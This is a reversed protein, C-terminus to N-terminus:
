IFNALPMRNAGAIFGVVSRLVAVFRAILVVVMGQPRFLYQAIKIRTETLGIYSGYRLLPYGYRDGIWFGITSGLPSFFSPSAL